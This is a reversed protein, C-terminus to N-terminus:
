QEEHTQHNMGFRSGLNVGRNSKPSLGGPSAMGGTYIDFSGDGPNVKTSLENLSALQKQIEVRLKHKKKHIEKKKQILADNSQAFSIMNDIMQAVEKLQKNENTLQKYKKKMDEFEIKEIAQKKTLNDLQHRLEALAMSDDRMPSRSSVRGGSVLKGRVHYETTGPSGPLHHNAESITSEEIDVHKRGTNMVLETHQRIRDELEEQLAAIRKNFEEKDLRHAKEKYDFQEELAEMNRKSNLYQTKLLGNSNELNSNQARLREIEEDKKALLERLDNAELHDYKGSGQLLQREM